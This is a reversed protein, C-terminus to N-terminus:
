KITLIPNANGSYTPLKGDWKKVKENEIELRKLELVRPTLSEQRIKNAKADSTAEIIKAKALGEQKAVEAETLARQTDIQSRQKEAVQKAEIKDNIANMVKDPLQIQGVFGMSEIIIGFSSLEEKVLKFSQDLLENKKTSFAEEANYNVSVRNIKDRITNRVITDRIEDAGLRFKSFLSAIKDDEFYYRIMLAANLTLGDKSQFTIVKDDTWTYNQSFTPFTYLERFPAIFHRGVGLPEIAGRQDTAYTYVKLGKYGVPVKQLFESVFVSTLVGIIIIVLLIKVTPRLNSIM